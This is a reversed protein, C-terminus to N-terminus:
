EEKFSLAIIAGHKYEYPIELDDFEPFFIDGKHQKMIESALHLGLGMGGMKDTIFPKTIMETPITFGKGNDAIIISKYGPIERTIDLYIKKNSINAYNLWWISNDIINIITSAILNENGKVIFEDQNSLYKKEVTIEHASLRFDVLFLSQNILRKFEFNKINKSKVVSSYGMTLSSLRKVLGMVHQSAQDAKTAHELESIVKEIEHLVVTMSIGISSSKQYVETIHQYDREINDLCGFLEKKLSKDSIKKDIRERLSAVEAVVPESKSTAGYYKRILYKDQARDHEFKEIAFLVADRFCIYASDEIFGERNTKEKLDFSEHRNLQISGLVLNTSIKDAPSNVRKANLDLWDDDGSSYIRVNDRYVFIGGNSKLYRKLGSSDSVDGFKLLSSDLDFSLLEVQVSGIQFESLDIPIFERTGKIKTKVERRMEIEGIANTRMELKDLSNWPYFDYKYNKIKNGQLTMTAKFLAYDKIEDYKMLGTLWEEKDIKFDVQFSDLAEFPSNLSTIARQLDRVKGRTWPVKLKEIIIKTGSPSNNLFTCSPDREIIDIPVDSLYQNSNFISWDINLYVESHNESRTILTIRNGLKHVGFRGIGKEGMPLRNLKSRLNKELMEKLKKEKHDTGPEMWYNKVVDYSMGDGDDEITIIASESDEVHSMTIQVNQADADYSNKILELVAITEDKILQEGLQSMLRARPKFVIAQKM